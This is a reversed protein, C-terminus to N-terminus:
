AGEVGEIGEDKEQSYVRAVAAKTFNEMKEQLETHPVLPTGNYWFAIFRNVPTRPTNAIQELIRLFHDVDQQQNEIGLSVRILGPLLSGPDSLGPLLKVIAAAM